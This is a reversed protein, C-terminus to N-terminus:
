CRPQQCLQMLDRSLQLHMDTARASSCKVPTKGSSINKFSTKGSWEKKSSELQEEGAKRM